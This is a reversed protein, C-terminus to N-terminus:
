ISKNVEMISINEDKHGKALCYQYIRDYAISKQDVPDSCVHLIYSKYYVSFSVWGFWSKIRTDYVVKDGDNYSIIRFRIKGYSVM